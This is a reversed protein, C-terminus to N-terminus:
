DPTREVKFVVPRLGDTCCTIITGKPIIWSADAGLIMSAVDRQIDGWAWPCFGEPASDLGVVFQDGVQFRDCGNASKTQFDPTATAEILDHNAIKKVVTIRASPM